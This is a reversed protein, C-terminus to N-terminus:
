NRRYWIVWLALIMGITAFTMMGRRSGLFWHMWNQVEYSWDAALPYFAGASVHSLATHGVSFHTSELSASGTEGAAVGPPAALALCFVVLGTGLFFRLLHLFIFNSM